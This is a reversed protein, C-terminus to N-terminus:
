YGIAEGRMVHELRRRVNQRAGILLAILRGDPYYGVAPVNLPRVAKALEINRHVDVEGFNARGSREREADLM